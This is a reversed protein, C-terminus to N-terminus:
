EELMVKDSNLKMNLIKNIFYKSPQVLALESGNIKSAWNNADTKKYNPEALESIDSASGDILSEMMMKM